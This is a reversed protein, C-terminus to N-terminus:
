PESRVLDKCMQEWREAWVEASYAAALSQSRRGMDPLREYRDHIFRLGRALAGADDSAVSLGNFYPRVLEVGSGCAETCLVPFGAACAELIVLPWPDYRSAIVFAGHEEFLAPQDPPQVFGRDSVGSADAIQSKLPGAGCCTLPWPDAIAARYRAYAALLVDIGKMEAYRGVFLFRRPWGGPRALRRAHLPALAAHDCGYMGRRIQAEAFGLRRAYQWAREGPVVVRAFRSRMRALKYRALRQRWEDRWPTDMALVFQATAFAPNTLLANYAPVAWGAIVIVHPRHASVAVAIRGANRMEDPPISEVALGTTIEAAFPASATGIAPFCVIRLDIAPRAALARWCAALYGSVGTWCITICLPANPTPGAMPAPITDCRIIRTV